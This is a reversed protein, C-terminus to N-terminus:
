SAFRWRIQQTGDLHLLNALAITLNFERGPATPGRDVVQTLVQKGKYEIYIKVGCPLVPHAVGLTKADIVIGCAGKTASTATYPSALATYWQGVPKPLKKNGNGHTVVALVIALALIAIGVFAAVRPGVFRRLDLLREMM